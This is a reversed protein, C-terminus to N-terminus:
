SNTLRFHLLMSNGYKDKRFEKLVQSSFEEYEKPHIKVVLRGEAQLLGPREAILQLIELWLNQFQPPDVFILDFSKSTNRLYSFADTRRLEVEKEAGCNKINKQCIKYALSNTETMIVKGAGRSVAELGVSGTGAFLDLVLADEIEFRLINFLSEKVRDLIPRTSKGPVAEIRKSKFKGAIIRM